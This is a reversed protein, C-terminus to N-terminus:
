VHARGIEFGDTRLAYAISDAIAQEDEAILITRSMPGTDPLRATSTLERSVNIFYGNM